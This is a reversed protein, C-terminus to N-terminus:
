IPTRRTPESIHILSLWRVPGSRRPAQCTDAVPDPEVAASRDAGQEQTGGVHQPVPFRHADARGARVTGSPSHWVAAQSARRAGSDGATRRRCRRYASGGAGRNPSCQVGRAREDCGAVDCAAAASGKGGSLRISAVFWLARCLGASGSVGVRRGVRGPRVGTSPTPSGDVRPLKTAAEPGPSWDPRFRVTAARNRGTAFFAQRTQYTPPVPDSPKFLGRSTHIWHLEQSTVCVM